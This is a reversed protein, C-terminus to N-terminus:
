RGNTTSHLEGLVIDNAYSADHIPTVVTLDEKSSLHVHSRPTQIIVDDEM